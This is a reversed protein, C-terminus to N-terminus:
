SGAALLGSYATALAAATSWLWPPHDVSAGTQTVSRCARLTLISGTLQPGDPGYTIQVNSDQPVREMRPAFFYRATAGPKLPRIIIATTPMMGGVTVGVGGGIGTGSSTDLEDMLLKVSAVAASRMDIVLKCTESTKSGPLPSLYADLDRGLFSGDAIEVMHKRDAVGLVETGDTWATDLVKTITGYFVRGTVAHVSV